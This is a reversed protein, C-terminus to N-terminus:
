EPRYKAAQFLKRADGMALLGQLSLNENKAMYSEVIQYGIWRGIRGPSGEPMYANKPGDNMYKSVVLGDKSFLHQADVMYKWAMDENKECWAMQPRTFGFIVSDPMEPLLQKMVYAVQGEYVMQTVLDTGILDRPAIDKVIVEVLDRPIYYPEFRHHMYTYVGEITPYFKYNQGLYMDLEVAVDGTTQMSVPRLMFPLVYTYVDPTKRKPFYLKLNKLAVDIPGAVTNFDKFQQKSDLYVSRIMSDGVLETFREAQENLPVEQMTWGLINEVFSVWFGKYKEAIGDVSRATFTKNKPEFLDTETRFIKFDIKIDDKIAEPAPPAVVVGPKPEQGFWGAFWGQQWGVLGILFVCIAAGLAVIVGVKNASKHRQIAANAQNKKQVEDQQNKPVDNNPFNSPNPSTSSPKELDREDSNM